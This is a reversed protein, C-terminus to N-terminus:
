VFVNMHIVAAADSEQRSPVKQETEVVTGNMTRCREGAM